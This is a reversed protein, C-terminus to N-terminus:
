VYSVLVWFFFCVCCCSCSVRIYVRNDKGYERWFYLFFYDMMTLTSQRGRKDREKPNDKPKYSRYLRFREWVSTDGNLLFGIVYAEMHYKTPFGTLAKLQENNLGDYLIKVEKVAPKPSERLESDINDMLDHLLIGEASLASVYRDELRNIGVGKSPTSAPSLSSRPGITSPVGDTTNHCQCWIVRGKGEDKLGVAQFQLKRKKTTKLYTKSDKRATSVHPGYHFAPEGM